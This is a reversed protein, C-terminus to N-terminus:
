SPCLIYPMHSVLLKSVVQVKSYPGNNYMTYNWLPLLLLNYLVHHTVCQVPLTYMNDKNLYLVNVCHVTLITM